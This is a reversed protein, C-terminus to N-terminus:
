PAGGDLRAFAQAARAHRYPEPWQRDFQVWRQELRDLREEADALRVDLQEDVPVRYPDLVGLAELLQEVPRAGGAVVLAAAAALVGLGAVTRFPHDGM